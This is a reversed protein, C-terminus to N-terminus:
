SDVPRSECDVVEEKIEKSENRTRSTISEKSELIAHAWIGLRGM